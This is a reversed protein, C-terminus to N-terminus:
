AHRLLTLFSSVKRQQGGDKFTFTSISSVRNVTMMAVNPKVKKLRTKALYGVIIYLVTTIVTCTILPLKMLIFHGHLLKNLKKELLCYKEAVLIKRSELELGKNLQGKLVNKM